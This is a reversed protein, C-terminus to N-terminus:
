VLLKLFVYPKWNEKPGHPVYLTYEVMFVELGISIIDKIDKAIISGM